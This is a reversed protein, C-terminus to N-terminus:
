RAWAIEGESTTAAVRFQQGGTWVYVGELAVVALSVGDPGWALWPGDFTNTSLKSLSGDALDMRWIDWPLGHASVSDSPALRAPDGQYDGSGSFLLATGDPTFRPNNVNQFPGVPLLEHADSGDVAMQWISLGYTVPDFLLYAFQSGDPSQTIQEANELIVEPTGGDPEVAEVTLRVGTPDGADNHQQKLHTYYM